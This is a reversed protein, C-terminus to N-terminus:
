SLSALWGQRSTWPLSADGARLRQSFVARSRRRAGSHGRVPRVQSFPRSRAVASVAEDFERDLATHPARSGCPRGSREKQLRCTRFCWCPGWDRRGGARADAPPSRPPLM